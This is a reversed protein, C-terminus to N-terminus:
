IKKYKNKIASKSKKEDSCIPLFRHKRLLKNWRKPELYYEKDHEEIHYRWQEAILKKSPCLKWSGLIDLINPITELFFDEFHDSGQTEWFEGPFEILQGISCAPELMTWDIMELEHDFGQEGMKYLHIHIMNPNKLLDLLISECQSYTVDKKSRVTIFERNDQYLTMRMYQCVGSIFSASLYTTIFLPKTIKLTFHPFVGPYKWEGEIFATFMLSQQIKPDGAISLIKQEIKKNSTELKWNQM